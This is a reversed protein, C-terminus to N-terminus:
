YEEGSVGPRSGPDVCGNVYRVLNVSVLVTIQGVFCRMARRHSRVITVRAPAGPAPRYEEGRGRGCAQQVRDGLCCRRACVGTGGTPDAEQRDARQYRYKGIEVVVHVERFIGIAEVGIRGSRGRWRVRADPGFALAANPV